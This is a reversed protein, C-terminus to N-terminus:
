LTSIKLYGTITVFHYSIVHCSIFLWAKKMLDMEDIVRFAKVGYGYSKGGLVRVEPGDRM